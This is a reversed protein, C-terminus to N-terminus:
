ALRLRRISAPLLSVMAQLEASSVELRIAYKAEYAAAFSELAAGDRAETVVGELIVVEDGSELHVSLRPNGVLNRAKRSARDTGFWFADGLWLGWVPMAHPVGDASVSAVWYNRAAALREVAWSWPLLGERPTAIGYSSPAHPRSSVPSLDNM